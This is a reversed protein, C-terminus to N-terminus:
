NEKQDEQIELEEPVEYNVNISQLYKLHKSTLKKVNILEDDNECNKMDEKLVYGTVVSNELSKGTLVFMYKKRHADILYLKHKFIVEIQKQDENSLCKAASDRKSMKKMKVKEVNKEKLEEKEEKEETEETETQFNQEYKILNAIMETKTASVILGREKSLIKLQTTKTRQVWQENKLQKLEVVTQKERPTIENNKQIRKKVQKPKEDKLSLIENNLNPSNLEEEIFLKFLENLDIEVEKKQCFEFFSSFMQFTGQFFQQSLITSM